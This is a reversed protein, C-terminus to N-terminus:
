EYAHRAWVYNKINPSIGLYVELGVLRDLKGLAVARKNGEIITFPGDTNISVLVLKTDLANLDRELVVEKEYINKLKGSPHPLRKYNSVATTLKFNPNCLGDRCWDDSSIIFLLDTDKEEVEVLSWHVNGYSVLPSILEGRQYFVDKEVREWHGFVEGQTVSKIIKM